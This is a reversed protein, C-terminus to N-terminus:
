QYGTRDLYTLFLKPTYASACIEYQEQVYQLLLLELVEEVLKIQKFNTPNCWNLVVYFLEWM